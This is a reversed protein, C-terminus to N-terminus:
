RPRCRLGAIETFLVPKGVHVLDGDISGSIGRGIISTVDSAVPVAADPARLEKAGNIVAAALPHDSLAEIAVATGLLDDVEAGPAAVANTLVPKGETLTGTKDFAIASLSGLHELPGGGKILIGSRAARALGSLVASPTSIALACPSAAVLVALARYLSDSFSEDLPVWAFLLIVVLTLVAPM